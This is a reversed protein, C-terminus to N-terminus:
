DRWDPDNASEDDVERDDAFDDFPPIETRPFRSRFSEWGAKLTM